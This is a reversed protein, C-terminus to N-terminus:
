FFHQKEQVQIAKFFYYIIMKFKNMFNKFIKCLKIISANQNHNSPIRIKINFCMQYMLNFKIMYKRHITFEM